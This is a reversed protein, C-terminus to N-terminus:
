VIVLGSAGQVGRIVVEAPYILTQAHGPRSGRQRLIRVNPLM